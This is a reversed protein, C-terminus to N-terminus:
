SGAYSGDDFVINHFNAVFRATPITFFGDDTRRVTEGGDIWKELGGRDYPNHVTVLDREADYGVVSYAHHSNAATVARRERLANGLETRV